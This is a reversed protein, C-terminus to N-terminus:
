YAPLVLNGPAPNCQLNARNQLWLSSEEEHMIAASSGIITTSLFSVLLTLLVLMTSTM